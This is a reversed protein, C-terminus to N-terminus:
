SGSELDRVLKGIEIEKKRLRVKLRRWLRDDCNLMKFKDIRRQKIDLFLEPNVKELLKDYYRPPRNKTGEVVVEDLPFIDTMGYKDFWPKGIGPKLSSQCFEPYLQIVEGTVADIRQYAEDKGKGNVKKLNYRAVYGASAYTLEGIISMGINKGSEPDSWIEDLVSSKYYHNGNVTKEYIKDPFDFNFLLLHYHARGNKKGYEGCYFVRIKRDFFRRRLRKLFLQVHRRDLSGTPCYKAYAEPNFTLTVFCNDEYLSAEHMCRVAWQRARELRCGLCGSCPLQLVNDGEPLGDREYFLICDERSWFLRKKGCDDYYRVNMPNYCPM